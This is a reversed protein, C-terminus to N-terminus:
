PLVPRMYVPTAILVFVILMAIALKKRLPDLPTEGVPPHYEGARSRIVAIMVTWLVWPIVGYKAYSLAATVSAGAGRAIAFMVGAVVLGVFPLGVHLRQSWREHRDSGLLSCAVHGGDLQGIPILNIMTVLVGVWAAEAMPSLQVDMGHSPLWQGFVAYKLLAYLISNGEISSDPRLPGITSHALGIALLPIAVVLGAIPGSAGVDFLADRDAIPESMSIVAGMTGPYVPLPIFYPLSSPLGRRRAAVYHGLEHCTLIAMLTASFAVGLLWTTTM